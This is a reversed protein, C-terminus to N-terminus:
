LNIAASQQMTQPNFIIIRDPQGGGKVIIALKNDVATISGITSGQPQQLNIEAEAPLQPHAKKYIVTLLMLTGFVLMFTIMFVIGKIIKLKDMAKARAKEKIEKITPM